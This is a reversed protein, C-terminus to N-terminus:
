DFLSARATWLQNPTSAPDGCAAAVLKSQATTGSIDLCQGSAKVVYQAGGAVAKKTFLQEPSMVCTKQVVSAGEVTACKGSHSAVLQVDGGSTPTVVWRGNGAPECAWLILEGGDDRSSGNVNMCSKTGADVLYLGACAGPFIEHGNAICTRAAAISAPRAAIVQASTQRQAEITAADFPKKPDAAVAAKILEIRRTMTGGLGGGPALLAAIARELAKDYAAICKESGLCKEFLVSFPSNRDAYGRYPHMETQFTQDVGTPIFSWVGTQSHRYLRYNNATIYNDWDGIVYAMAMMSLFKETDVMPSAGFFVDDGPRNVAAILEKLRAHDTEEAPNTKESQHVMKLTGIDSERLDGGYTSEYMVGATDGLKRELFHKDIAELTVYLGYPKGNISVNSYGVRPVAVGVADYMKYALAERVMTPDQTMSNLTLNKLGLLPEDFDLKLAPKQDFGQVSAMGKIKLKASVTTGKYTVTAKVETRKAALHEFDWHAKINAVEADLKAVDAPDITVAFDEVSTMQFIADGGDESQNAVDTGEESTEAPAICGAMAVVAGLAFVLKMYACTHLARALGSKL